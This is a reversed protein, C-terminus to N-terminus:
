SCSIRRADCRDGRAPMRRHTRQCTGSRSQHDGDGPIPPTPPVAHHRPRTVEVELLQTSDGVAETCLADVDGDIGCIGARDHRWIWVALVDVAPPEGCTLAPDVTDQSGQVCWRSRRGVSSCVPWCAPAVGSTRRHRSSDGGSGPKSWLMEGAICRSSRHVLGANGLPNAVPDWAQGKTRACAPRRQPPRRPGTWPHLSPRASM